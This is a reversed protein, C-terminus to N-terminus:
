KGSKESKESKKDKGKEEAAIEACLKPNEKRAKEIEAEGVKGSLVDELIKRVAGSQSYTKAEDTLLYYRMWDKGIQFVRYRDNQLNPLKKSVNM